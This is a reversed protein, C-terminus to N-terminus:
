WYQFLYPLPRLLIVTTGPIHLWNAQSSCWFAEKSPSYPTFNISYTIICHSSLRLPPRIRTSLFFQLSSAILVILVILLNTSYLWYITSRWLKNPEAGRSRPTLLTIAVWPKSSQLKVLCCCLKQPKYCMYEISSPLFDFIPRPLNLVRPPSLCCLLLRLFPIFNRGRPNFNGILFTVMQCETPSLEISFSIVYEQKPFLIPNFYTNPFNSILLM